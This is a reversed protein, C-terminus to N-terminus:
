RFIIIQCYAVNGKFARQSLFFGIRMVRLKEKENSEYLRHYAINKVKDIWWL